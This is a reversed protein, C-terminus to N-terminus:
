THDLIILQQLMSLIDIVEVASRTVKHFLGDVAALINNKFDFNLTRKFHFLFKRIAYKYEQKRRRKFFQLIPNLSATGLILRGNVMSHRNSQVFDIQKLIIIVCHNIILNIQCALSYFRNNDGFM